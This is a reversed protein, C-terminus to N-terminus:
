SHLWIVRDGRNLRRAREQLAEGVPCTDSTAKHFEISRWGCECMSRYIRETVRGERDKVERYVSSVAHMDPASWRDLM